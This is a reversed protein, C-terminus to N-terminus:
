HVVKQIGINELLDYFTRIKTRTGRGSNYTFLVRHEARSFAVFFACKAEVTDKDFSWWSRDDLAAFVVTHYELGKSKHITMVPVSTKGTFNELASHLNETVEVSETLLRILSDLDREFNSDDLYEPFISQLRERGFFRVVKLVLNSIDDFDEETFSDIFVEIKTHLQRSIVTETEDVNEIQLLFDFIDTFLNQNGSIYYLTSVIIKVLQSSLIDQYKAEDRFNIGIRSGETKLEQELFITPRQRVLIVFDRPNLKDEDMSNKIFTSIYEVEASISNFEHLTCVDQYDSETNAIPKPASPDVLLSISHLIEVLADNSRFNYLLNFSVAQNRFEGFETFANDLAGAWGMIRQKPDGVATISNSGGNPFCLKLLDLQNTTTDQFEDVFVYQYTEGIAHKLNPNTKILLEVLARVMSFSLTTPNQSLCSEWWLKALEFYRLHDASVSDPNFVFHEESLKLNSIAKFFWSHNVDRANHEYLFERQETSSPERIVYSDVSYQSPLGRMFRDLLTKSFADFTYSDFRYALEKPLRKQVRDRLNSAADRKFSIALIRRNTRCKRTTLLYHAKQALLETKGAGPGAIVCLDGLNKIAQEAAPELFDIDVPIWNENSFNSM